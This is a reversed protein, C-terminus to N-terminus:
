RTKLTVVLSRDTVSGTVGADSGVATMRITYPGITGPEFLKSHSVVGTSRVTAGDTITTPAITDLVVPSLPTIATLRSTVKDATTSVTGDIFQRAQILISDTKRLLSVTVAGTEIETTGSLAVAAANFFEVRNVALLELGIEEGDSAAAVQLPLQSVQLLTLVVGGNVFPQLDRIEFIEAALGRLGTVLNPIRPHTIAVLDGPELVHHRYLVNLQLQAPPFAYRRFLAQAREDALAQAGGSSRWGRAEIQFVPRRGFDQVSARATYRQLKGFDDAASTLNWDYTFEVVNIIRDSAQSWAWGMIDDVTLTTVPVPTSSTLAKARRVSLRGDSLVVPYCTLAKLEREIAAKGDEPTNIRYVSQDGPFEANRVAEIGALDVFSAPVGLGNPAEFGDYKGNGGCTRWLLGTATTRVNTEVTRLQQHDLIEAVTLFQQDSTGPGILIAAGPDLDDLFTTGVGFVRDPAIGQVATNVMLLATGTSTLWALLIDLPHGAFTLVNNQTAGAFLQSRTRRQIDSLTLAYAAAGAGVIRIIEMTQLTLWQSVDVDRYGLQVALRQGVRLQEGNHIETGAPLAVPTTGDVGFTLGTFTQAALDLATYRIRYVNGSSDLCELTGFTPYGSVDGGAAISAPRDAAALAVKLPLRPDALQRLIEGAADVLVATFTGISSRGNEPDITQTNGGLDQICVIAPRFLGPLRPHSVLDRSFAYQAGQGIRRVHCPRLLQAVLQSATQRRADYEATLTKM